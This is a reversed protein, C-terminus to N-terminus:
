CPLYLLYSCYIFMRENFIELCSSPSKVKMMSTGQNTQVCLLLALFLSFEIFILLCHLNLISPNIYTFTHFLKFAVWRTFLTQSPNRTMEGM